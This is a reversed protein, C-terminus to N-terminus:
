KSLFYYKGGKADKLIKIRDTPYRGVLDDVYDIFNNYHDPVNFGQTIASAFKLQHESLLVGRQAGVHDSAREKRTMVMASSLLADALDDIGLLKNRTM